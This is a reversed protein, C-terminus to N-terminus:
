PVRLDMVMNVMFQWQDREQLLLIWDVDEYGIEKYNKKL